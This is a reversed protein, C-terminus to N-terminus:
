HTERDKEKASLLQRYEIILSRSSNLKNTNGKVRRKYEEYFSIAEEIKGADSMITGASCYYCTGRSGAGGLRIAYKIYYEALLMLEVYQEHKKLLDYMKGCVYAFNSYMIAVEEENNIRWLKEEKSNIEKELIEVNEVELVIKKNIWSFFSDYALQFQNDDIACIGLINYADRRQMPENVNLALKAFRIGEKYLDKQYFIEAAFVATSLSTNHFIKGEELQENALCQVFTVFQLTYVLYLGDQLNWENKNLLNKLVTKLFRQSVEIQLGNNKDDNYGVIKFYIDNFLIALEVGIGFDTVLNYVSIKYENENVKKMEINSAIDYLINILYLLKYFDSFNKQPRFEQYMNKEYKEEEEVIANEMEEDKKNIEQAVYEIHKIDLDKKFEPFLENEVIVDNHISWKKALDTEKLIRYMIDTGKQKLGRDANMELYYLFNLEGRIDSVDEDIHFIERMLNTCM